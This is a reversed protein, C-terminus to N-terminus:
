EKKLINVFDYEIAYDKIILNNIIVDLEGLEWREVMRFTDKTIISALCSSSDIDLDSSSPGTFNVGIVRFTNGDIVPGGSMGKFITGPECMICSSEFVKDISLVETEKNLIVNGNTDKYGCTIAKIGKKIYTSNDIIKLTKNKFEDICDIRAFAIENYVFCELIQVEITKPSLVFSDYYSIIVKPYFGLTFKRDKYSEPTTMELVHKSTILFGNSIFGSGISGDPLEIKILFYELAKRLDLRFNADPFPPIGFKNVRAAYKNALEDDIGRVQRLYNIKGVLHKTISPNINKTEINHIEARLNRIYKRRVNIKENVVVGTIKQSKNKGLVKTKKNNIKFGNSEIITTFNANLVINGSRITSLDIFSALDNYSKFSFTMDDAYRTYIVGRIKCYKLIEKDMRKCIMNSLIPSTCAGQPLHNDCTVLLCLTNLVKKNHYSSFQSSRSFTKDFLGYLRKYTISNFFDILDIKLIYEPSKGNACHASANTIINKNRTYGHVVNPKYKEYEPEFLFHLLRKQILKLDYNCPAEILRKGGSRKDLYFKNYKKEDPTRLVDYFNSAKINLDKILQFVQKSM